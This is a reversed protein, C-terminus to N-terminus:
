SGALAAWVSLEPWSRQLLLPVTVFAFGSVALVGLSCALALEDLRACRRLRGIVLLAVALAFLPLASDLAVHLSPLRSAFGPWPFLAVAVTVAGSVGAVVCVPMRLDRM